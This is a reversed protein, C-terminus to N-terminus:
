QLFPLSSATDKYISLSPLMEIILKRYQSIIAIEGQPEEKQWSTLLSYFSHLHIGICGQNEEILQERLFPHLYSPAVIIDGMRLDHLSAM